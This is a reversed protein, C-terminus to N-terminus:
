GKAPIVILQVIINDTSGRHMAQKQLADCIQDPPQGECLRKTIFDAVLEYSVVGWLGDSALVIFYSLHAEFCATTTYPDAIIGSSKDGNFKPLKYFADGVSRSLAMSFLKQNFVPHGVRGDRTIVGGAARVRLEESQTKPTHLESLLKFDTHKQTESSSIYSVMLVETDGVNAVSVRQLHSDIVLAALTTGDDCAGSQTALNLYYQEAEVIATHLVAEPNEILRDSNLALHRPIRAKAMSAAQTGGHGDFVGFFSFRSPLPLQHSLEGPFSWVAESQMDSDLNCEKGFAKGLLAKGKDQMEPRHNQASASGHQLPTSCPDSTLMSCVSTGGKAYGLESNSAAASANDRFGEASRNMNNMLPEALSSLPNLQGPAKPGTLALEGGLRISMLYHDQGDIKSFELNPFLLRLEATGAVEHAYFEAKYVGSPCRCEAENMGPQPPLSCIRRFEVGPEVGLMTRARSDIAVVTDTKDVLVLGDCLLNLMGEIVSFIRSMDVHAHHISVATDVILGYFIVLALQWQWPDAQRTFFLYNAMAAHIVLYVLFSRWIPGERATSLPLVFLGILRFLPGEEDNVICVLFALTRVVMNVIKMRELVDGQGSAPIGGKAFRSGLSYQVLIGLSALIFMQFAGARFEDTQQCFPFSLILFIFWLIVLGKVHGLLQRRLGSPELRGSSAM